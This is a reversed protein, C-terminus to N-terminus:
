PSCTEIKLKDDKIKFMVSGVIDTRYIQSYKLNDLVNINPHGYRNNKGVSIISYKPNISDIFKKSSSTKSGHHGAKLVDIDQLNYKIILDEEVEVGADGMFLFKYNNLETYIVSSNDNENGYDKNNLFYLKNNDINLEKICSYYPIKKKDLVKILEQELENFEGCNFIVKEVKFNNVLNIAEGMHDYDGHTLILYDIKKIGISKLYPITIQEAISKTNRTKWSEKEFNTKGGTDILINAKDNPLTILISDGQGVDLMTITPYLNLIAINNHIIVMVILPLVLKKNKSLVGNIFMIVLLYYLVIIYIPSKALTIDVKLYNMITIIKEIIILLIEFLQNFYPVVLVLLSFPFIIFTFLPVVILNVIPSFLNISFNNNILIPISIVFSVLSIMFLKIFYNNYKKLKKNYYSLIISISFSYQLGINYISYPNYILILSLIFLLINVPKIQLNFTKNIFMLIFYLTARTISISYNSLFLYLFLFMIVISYSILTRKFIKKLFFLLATSLITIHMGSAALIHSIGNDKYLKIVEDDMESTDGLIITKMYSYSDKYNKLHNIITNKFTYLYNNNLSYTKIKKANFIWYIKNSFLYKKYNFLNFNTNEGPEVMEGEAIIYDGLKLSNFDNLYTKYDDYYYNIIIKEKGIVILKLQNGDWKINNIIGNIVVENKTYKTLTYNFNM